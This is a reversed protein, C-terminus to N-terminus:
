NLTGAIGSSPRKERSDSRESWVMAERVLIDVERWDDDRSM